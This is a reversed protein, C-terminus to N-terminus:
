GEIDHPDATEARAQDGADGSEAGDAPASRALRRRLRDRRHNLERLLRGREYRTLGPIGAEVRAIAGDVIELAAADDRLRHEYQKALEIAASVDGRACQEEWVAMAANYEGARRLLLALRRAADAATAEDPSRAAEQLAHVADDPRGSRAYLIGLALPDRYPDASEAESLLTHGARAALTVLSLIDMANHYFVDAMPETDGQQVYANYLGPILYGPIDHRSRELGLLPTELASLACSSLCRRWLRRALLLLDLHQVPDIPPPRGAMVYRTELIPWDFSRGNFSVLGAAAGLVEGVLTLLAPEEGYDPMFFQRLVFEDGEFTGLGVLFAVTGGSRSLGSTEIDVFVARRVDLPDGAGGLALTWAEPPLSLVESLRYCGHAHALSFREEALFCRGDPTMQWTGPVVEELPVGRRRPPTPQQLDSARRLGLHLLRTRLDMPFEWPHALNAGTIRAPYLRTRPRM